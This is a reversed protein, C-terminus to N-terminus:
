KKLGKAGPQNKKREKLRLIRLELFQPDSYDEKMSEMAAIASELDNMDEYCSVLNLQLGDVKARSPYKEILDKLVTAAEAHRKESVLINSEFVSIDYAIEGLDKNEKLTQLEVQAQDLRALQYNAKALQLRYQIKEGKTLDMTLLKELIEVAREYDRTHDILIQVLYKLSTTKEELSPSYNALYLYFDSAAKYQRLQFHALQAGLRSAELVKEQNMENNLILLLETLGEARNGSQILSQAKSISGNSKATCGILFFGVVLLSRVLFNM